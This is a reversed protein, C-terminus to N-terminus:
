LSVALAKITTTTSLLDPKQAQHMMYRDTASDEMGGGRLSWSASRPQSACNPPLEILLQPAPSSCHVPDRVGRSSDVKPGVTQNALPGHVRSRSAFTRTLHARETFLHM